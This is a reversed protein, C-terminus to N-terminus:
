KTPEPPQPTPEAYRWHTTAGNDDFVWSWQPWRERQIGNRRHSTWVDVFRQGDPVVPLADSVRVWEPQELLKRAEAIAADVNAADTRDLQIKAERDVANCAHCHIWTATTRICQDEHHPCPAYEALLSALREVVARTAKNM